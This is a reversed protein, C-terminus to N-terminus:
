KMTFAKIAIAAPQRGTSIMTFLSRTGTRVVAVDASRTDVVFLLHGAGSLAMAVPGDGVRITGTRKGDDVAYVTVEQSGLNSVYLLSNDASVLGRMPSDGMMYAGGVDNTPTSVESISDSGSNAVFLEGGDPKLALHAPAKGVDLMAELQDPQASHGIAIVMVQHGEACAAFAKLSNPLIVIDSAGPCGEFVARLPHSTPSLLQDADLVVLSNAIANAVVVSRGDPAVRVASPGEGVGLVAIERRSTLDLVSLSNSAFNAVYARKGSADLALALPKRRVAITAAVQNTEANIVSVSGNSIGNGANLVYIENRTPNAVVDVPHDGVALERDLRVNVVDLITVSNSGANPIYAYEHYNAPYDPFDHQRCGSLAALTILSVLLASCQLSLRSNVSSSSRPM